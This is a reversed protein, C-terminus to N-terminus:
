KALGMKIIKTVADTCQAGVSVWHDIRDVHLQVVTHKIPDYTGLNELFAGDRKCRGDVAVIRWHPRNKVGLRSLRIKVAM